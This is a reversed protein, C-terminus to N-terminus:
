TVPTLKTFPALRVLIVDGTQTWAQEAYGVVNTLYATTEALDELATQCSRLRGTTDAIDLADGYAGSGYMTAFSFGASKVPVDGYQTEQAEQTIGVFKGNGAATPKKVRGVTSDRVVAMHVAVGAADAIQYSSVEDM